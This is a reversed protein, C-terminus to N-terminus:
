HANPGPRVILVSCKAHRSVAESVSGLLFRDLGTRGHSGVVILDPKWEADFNLIENKPHGERVSTSVQFGAPELERANQAVLAEARDLWDEIKGVFDGPISPGVGTGVSLPALRLPEIVHLIHVEMGEGRFESRVLNVAAQSYKSDDIALLIKM